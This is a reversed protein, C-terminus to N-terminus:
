GCRQGVWGVFTQRLAPRWTAPSSSSRCAPGVTGFPVCVQKGGPGVGLNLNVVAADLHPLSAILSLATTGDAADEVRHGAEEIEGALLLAVMSNDEVLLVVRPVASSTSADPGPV